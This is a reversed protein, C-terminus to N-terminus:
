TLITPSPTKMSAGAHRWCIAVCCSVNGRLEAVGGGSLRGQQLQADFAMEMAQVRTLWNSGANTVAKRMQVASWDGATAFPIM